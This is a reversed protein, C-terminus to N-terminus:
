VSVGAVYRARRTWLALGVFVPTGIAAPVLFWWARGTVALPITLHIFHRNSLADVVGRSVGPARTAIPPGSASPQLLAAAALTSGVVLAGLALPWRAAIHTGWGAALCAFVACHVM